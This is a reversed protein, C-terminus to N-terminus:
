FDMQYIQIGVHFLIKKDFISSFVFNVNFLLCYFELLDLDKYVIKIKILLTDVGLLNTHARTADGWSPCLHGVNVPIAM